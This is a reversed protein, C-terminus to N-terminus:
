KGEEGKECNTASESLRGAVNNELWVGRLKQSRLTANERYYETWSGCKHNRLASILTSKEQWVKACDM